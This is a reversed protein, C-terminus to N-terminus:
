YFYNLVNKKGQKVRPMKPTKVTSKPVKPPTAVKRPVMPKQQDFGRLMGGMVKTNVKVKSAIPKLPRYVVKPPSTLKPQKITSKKHNIKVVQKEPRTVKYMKHTKNPKQKRTTKLLMTGDKYQYNNFMTNQQENQPRAWSTLWDFINPSPEIKVTATNSSTFTDNAVVKNKVTVPSFTKVSGSTSPSLNTNLWANPNQDALENHYAVYTQETPVGVTGLIQSMTKMASTPQKNVANTAINRNVGYVDDVGPIGVAHSTEHVLSTGFMGPSEGSSHIIVASKGGEKAYGLISNAM